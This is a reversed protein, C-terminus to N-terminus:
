LGWKQRMPGLVRVLSDKLAIKMRGLVGSRYTTYDRQLAAVGPVHLHEDYTTQRLEDAVSSHGTEVLLFIRKFLRRM